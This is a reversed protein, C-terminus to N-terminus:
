KPPEPHLEGSLYVFFDNRDFAWSRPDEPTGEHTGAAREKGYSITQIRSPDVGLSALFERAAQARREGLGINYEETGRPDCDGEIRFTITRYPAQILFNAASRLTRKAEPRLESKDFDFFIRKVKQGFLTALEPNTPVVATKLAGPKEAVTVRAAASDSGGLGTATATYTTSEPPSVTRTGSGRVDGLGTITVRDANASSWSLITSQGKTIANPSASISISPHAPRSTVSVTKSDRAERKGRTAVVTYTTTSNPTFLKSGAKDVKQGDLTVAKADKSTWSVQVDQGQQVQDRSVSVVVKPKACGALLILLSVTSIISLPRILRHTMQSFAGKKWNPCLKRAVVSRSRSLAINSRSASLDPESWDELKPRGTEATLDMGDPSQILLKPLKLELLGDKLKARVQPPDIQAPLNLVTLISSLRSADSNNEGNEQIASREHGNVIVLRSSEVGIEIESADLGPMAALVDLRDGHDAIKCPLLRALEAEARLWDQLDHGHERGRTEFLEYARRTVLDYFRAIDDSLAATAILKPGTEAAESGSKSEGKSKVIIGKQYFRILSTGTLVENELKSM